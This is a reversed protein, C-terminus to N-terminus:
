PESSPFLSFARRSRFPSCDLRLTFSFHCPFLPFLPPALPPLFRAQVPFTLLRMIGEADQARILPAFQERSQEFVPSPLRHAFACAQAECRAERKVLGVKMVANM